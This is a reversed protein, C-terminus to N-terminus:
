CPSTSWGRCRTSPTTAWCARAGGRAHVRRPVGRAAAARAARRRRAPEVVLRDGGAADPPPRPAATAAACCRSGTRSAGTSRRSRCRACRPPRWSSRSRCATSGASSAPARRRRDLRVSPRAARARERFLQAADAVSSSASCTSASPPSRRAAGPEHHAGAARGDTSVLFAVLEAVAEVLHECNDLM